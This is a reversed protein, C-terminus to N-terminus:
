ASASAICEGARAPRDGQVALAAPAPLLCALSFVVAAVVFIKRM